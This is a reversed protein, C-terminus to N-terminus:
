QVPVLKQRRRLVILSLGAGLGLVVAGSALVLVWPFGGDPTSRSAASAATPTVRSLQFTRTDVAAVAAGPTRVTLTNGDLRLRLRSVDRITIGDLDICRASRNTTDLAHIFPVGGAGDYLTYAWRGDPSATRTVPSGRM